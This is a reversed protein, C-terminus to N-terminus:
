QIPENDIDLFITHALYDTLEKMKVERTIDKELLDLGDLSVVPRRPQSFLIM